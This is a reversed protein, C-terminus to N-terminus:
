TQFQCFVEEMEFNFNCLTSILSYLLEVMVHEAYQYVFTFVKLFVKEVIDTKEVLIYLFFIPLLIRNQKVNPTPRNM